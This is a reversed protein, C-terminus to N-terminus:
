NLEALTPVLAASTAMVYPLPQGRDGVSIKATRQSEHSKMLTLTLMTGTLQAIATQPQISRPLPILSQFHSLPFDPVSYNQSDLPDLRDGTVLVTEPTIQLDLVNRSHQFQIQLILLTRTEQLELRFPQSLGQDCVWLTSTYATQKLNHFLRFLPQFIDIMQWSQQSVM